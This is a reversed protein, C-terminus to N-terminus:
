YVLQVGHCQLSHLKVTSVGLDIGLTNNLVPTLFGTGLNDLPSKLQQVVLSFLALLGNPIGGSTGNMSGQIVPICSPAGGLGCTVGILAGGVIGTLLNTVGSLLGGVSSALGSVNLTLASGLLSTVQTPLTILFNNLTGNATSLQNLGAELQALNGGASANAYWLDSGLNSVISANNSSSTNSVVGNLMLTTIATFINSVTTGINLPTGNSPLNQQQGAYFPASGSADLASIAFHTTVNAVQTGGVKIRLLLQDINAGPVSSCDGTSSFAASQNFAGVCTKLVSSNVRITALDHGSSDKSTCLSTLTAKANVMDIAIPINIYIQTGLTTLLGGVLPANSSNVGLQIFARVQATFATTGVGGIGIAPPEIVSAKAQTTVVNPPVNLALSPVSLAHQATAVGIATSVLQLANVQANLASQAASDPATIQAFLGTPTPGSSGLTVMGPASGVAASVANVLTTNASLLQQQGAAIVTANLVDILAHANVSSALLTNLGGVTINAPVQVGLAALLGAPTVTANALGDYGVLSAQPISIGIATLLGGLTSQNSVTALTSGVSFVAIPQKSAAVAEATIGPLQGALGFLPSVPRQAVVKVANPTGGSATATFHDAIASNAVPDWTGCTIKLTWATGHFGNETTANGRAATNDANDPTCASMLQAGALAALDAVKQTDRKTWYLYSVEVMGLMSILFLLVLLM